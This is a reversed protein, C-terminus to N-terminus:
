LRDGQQTILNSKYALNCWHLISWGGEAAAGKRRKTGRKNSSRVAPLFYRPFSPTGPWLLEADPVWDEHHCKHAGSVCSARSEAVGGAENNGAGSDGCSSCGRRACSRLLSVPSSRLPSSLKNKPPKKWVKRRFLRWSLGSFHTLKAFLAPQATLFIFPFPQM